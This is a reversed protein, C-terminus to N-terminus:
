LNTTEIMHLGSSTGIRNAGARILAMAQAATKIGGSAKVGVSEPLVRKMLLIDEVSAGRHAFGTSTKVFDAGAQACLMCAQEIEVATLYATELIVKLLAGCNHALTSCKAIETKTWPHGSKFASINWVVDIEDAGHDIARKIEDLKTETLVYGLPFGAVTVLAINEGAIERRARKVWFPPVCVGRFKYQCAEAVLRDVDELSLTPNLNTHEIYSALNV